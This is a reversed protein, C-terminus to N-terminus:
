EMGSRRRMEVSAALCARLRLAVAAVQLAEAQVADADNQRIADTLEAMEEVLVGLAEHTSTFPGYSADARVMEALLADRQEM